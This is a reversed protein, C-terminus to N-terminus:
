RAADSARTTSTCQSHLVFHMYNPLLVFPMRLLILPFCGRKAREVVPKGKKKKMGWRGNASKETENRDEEM